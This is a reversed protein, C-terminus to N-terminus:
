QRQVRKTVAYSVAASVAAVAAVIVILAALPNWGAVGMAALLVGGAVWVLSSLRHTEAWVRRDSLTRSTRIGIWPNPPVFPMTLGVLVMMTGVALATSRDPAWGWEHMIWIPAWSALALLGLLVLSRFLTQRGGRPQDVAPSRRGASGSTGGKGGTGQGYGPEPGSLGYALGVALMFPPLILAVPLLWDALRAQRGLGILVTELALFGLLVVVFAKMGRLMGRISTAVRQANTETIEGPWNITGRPVLLILLTMGVWIALQVGVLLFLSRRPGYADPEGGLDFHTPIQDPLHSWAVLVVAWTAAMALFALGELLWEWPGPAEQLGGQPTPSPVKPGRSRDGGM